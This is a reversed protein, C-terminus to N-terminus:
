KGLSKIQEIPPGDTPLWPFIFEFIFYKTGEPITEYFLKFRSIPNRARRIFCFYRHLGLAWYLDSFSNGFLVMGPLRQPCLEPSSKFEWDFPRGIGDDARELVHPDPLYWSGDPEAGGITYSGQYWPFNKEVIPVLPALFRAEGGTYDHHTLTLNENWRIEPRGELHAIRAIIEKVVPLQGFETAHMDTQAYIHERSEVKEREFITQADIYTLTPQHALFQRLRGDNGGPAIQPMDPPVMEPYIRSKTPYGIVVLRIGRDNLMGALTTFRQEFAALQSADLTNLSDQAGRDFLWGHKGVYVKRSTHFLSYDIQNKTRIFLDRFGVRDDFWANLGGAFGGDTKLLLAPDPFASLQRREELRPVLALKPFVTKVLPLVVLCAVLFLFVTSITHITFKGGALLSVRGEAKGATAEPPESM